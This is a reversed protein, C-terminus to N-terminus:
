GLSEKKDKRAILQSLQSLSALAMFIPLLMDARHLEELAAGDLSKLKEEDIIHYGVLSSRSGNSLPVDLSFPELLEYRDLAAFFAGSESYWAHLAGLRDNIGELYPTPRQDADFVRTGEGSTSIRPHDMDIHIQPDGGEERPRGVLFPQIAMALPRYRADWTDGDLYLNEGNEFGFLALATTGSGDDNRRFLIPYDGQVQRFEQPVVLSAMVADGYHAGADTHVRLEAHDQTNLTQHNSM